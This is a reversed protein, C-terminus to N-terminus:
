MRKKRICALYIGLLPPCSMQLLGFFTHSIFFDNFICLHQICIRLCVPTSSLIIESDVNSVTCSSDMSLVFWGACSYVRTLNRPGVMIRRTLATYTHKSILCSTPGAPEITSGHAHCPMCRDRFTASLLSAMSKRAILCSNRLSDLCATPSRKPLLFSGNEDDHM